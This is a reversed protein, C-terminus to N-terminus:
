AKLGLAQDDDIVANLVQKVNAMDSVLNRVANLLLNFDTANGFGTPTVATSTMAGPDTALPAAHTKSATAYTQTFASPRSVPAVGFFGIQHASSGLYILPNTTGNDIFITNRTGPMTGNTIAINNIGTLVIFCDSPGNAFSLAADQTPSGANRDMSTGTITCRGSNDVRFGYGTTTVGNTDAICGELTSNGGNIVHFGHQNNDEAHCGVLTNRTGSIRFGDGNTATVAGCFFATCNIIRNNAATILFGELGATGVTTSEVTINAGACLVGNGDPRRIQCNRVFVERSNASISIGHGKIDLITVNEISVLCDNNEFAAGGVNNITIANGSTNNAKNGLIRFRGGLGMVGCQETSTTALTIFDANLSNKVKLETGAAVVLFVGDKLQINGLLYPATSRPVFVVGGAGLGGLSDIAAQFAATDEAVGDGVAGFKRVDFWPRGSGFIADGTFTAGTTAAYGTLGDHALANHQEPTFVPHDGPRPM